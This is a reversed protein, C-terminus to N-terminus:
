LGIVQLIEEASYQPFQTIAQEIQTKYKPNNYFNKLEDEKTKVPPAFLDINEPTFDIGQGALEGRVQTIMYNSLANLKSRVQSDTDSVKPTIKAVQKIQETTLSAGSAWQQVKLNIAEIDSRNALQEPTSFIDPRKFFPNIGVFEGNPNRNAMAQAGSIVNLANSMSVNNKAGSNKIVESISSVIDKNGSSVMNQTLAFQNNTTTAGGFNKIVKGTTKNILMQNDGVKVIENNQNVLLDSLGPIKMVDDLNKANNFGTLIQPSVKVGLELLKKKVDTVDTLDKETKDYIRQEKKQAAELDKDAKGQTNEVMFKLADLKIRSQELKNKLQRDAIESAGQYDNDAVFKLIALDAQHNSSENQIRGIEDALGATTGGFTHKVNEIRDRTAKADALIQASYRDSEKKAADKASYDISGPIDASGMLEKLYNASSTDATAQSETAKEDATKSDSTLNEIFSGTAVASSPPNAPPTIIGKTDGSPLPITSPVNSDVSDAPGTPNKLDYIGYAQRDNRIPTTANNPTYSYYENTTPVINTSQNHPM